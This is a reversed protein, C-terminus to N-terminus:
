KKAFDVLFDVAKDDLKKYYFRANDKIQKQLHKSPEDYLGVTVFGVSNSSIIGYPLDEFVYTEEPLLNFHEICKLYISPKNKSENVMTSTIIFDFYKDIHLKKVVEEILYKDTSSAIAMKINLSYLKELLVGINPKIEVNEMYYKEMISNIDDMIKELSDPVNYVDKFYKASEPLSMALFKDALDEKPEINKMKAYEFPAISWYVMSDVLTGDLDFIACRIM